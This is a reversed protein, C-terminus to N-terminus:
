DDSDLFRVRVEDDTIVREVTAGRDLRKRLAARDIGLTNMADEFSVTDDVPADAVPADAEIVQVMEVGDVYVRKATIGRNLRKRLASANCDFHAMAETHTLVTSDDALMPTEDMVTEDLVASTFAFGKTNPDLERITEHKCVRMKANHYDVPVAVVDAPDVKVLITVGGFTYGGSLYGQACVHLGASCTQEPDENVENRPMTAPPAGVSYDFTGTRSDTLTGDDNRKCMKYATLYGDDTIPLDNAEMFGYLEKVARFSPNLMLRELFRLMPGVSLGEDVFQLIRSTVANHTPMDKYLVVGDKVTVLGAGFEVIPTVLDLLAPIGANNGAAALKRIESYNPHSDTIPTTHGDIMLTVGHPTVMAAKVETM